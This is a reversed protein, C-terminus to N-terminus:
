HEGDSENQKGANQTYYVFVHASKKHMLIPYVFLDFKSMKLSTFKGGRKRKELGFFLRKKVCFVCVDKAFTERERERNIEPVARASTARSSFVFFLSSTKKKTTTTTTTTTRPM